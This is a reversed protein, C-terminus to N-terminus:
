RARKNKIVIVTVIVAAAIVAVSVAAIIIIVTTNDSGTAPLVIGEIHDCNVCKDMRLGNNKKTPESIVEGEVLFHEGTAPLVQGETVVKNCDNCYTDGSYGESGCTAKTENQLFTNKHDGTAPIPAGESMLAGCDKCCTDGTYGEGGCTPEIAGIVESSAHACDPIPREGATGCVTCTSVQKDGETKWAEYNHENTPGIKTGSAVKTNCDKCYTDGSYGEKNCTPSVANRIETNKHTCAKTEVKKCVSCTRTQQGNSTTWDGFTHKGTAKIVTGTSMKKGCAKCHKDGSYGDKGCTAESKNRVETSSHKCSPDGASAKGSPTTMGEPIDYGLMLWALEPYDIFVNRNGQIAGIVENRGMEWTDVPDLECWELLVEVSEFVKTLSDCGWDSNWRVYMYLCIRAVDGKVNDNPEYYGGSLYGGLCGEAPKKGYVAKGGTANGYKNNNRTSNVIADAPRIHHMDAGGGKTSNGGLSKPWVHERNWGNSGTNGYEATTAQYSTYLLTIKGNNKESDVKTAMDRCDNYVSINTHTDRMLKQLADFLADESLDDLKDYTYNGTYYKSAGTGELTVCVVDRTGSNSEKSYVLTAATVPSSLPLATAIISFVLLLAATIRKFKKM